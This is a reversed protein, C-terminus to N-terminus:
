RWASALEFNDDGQGLYIALGGDTGHRERLQLLSDVFGKGRRRRTDGRQVVELYVAHPLPRIAVDDYTCHGFLLCLQKQEVGSLPEGAEIRTRGRLSLGVCDEGVEDRAGEVRVSIPGGGGDVVVVM